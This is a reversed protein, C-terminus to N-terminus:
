DCCTIPSAFSPRASAQGRLAPDFSAYGLLDPRYGVPANKVFAGRAQAIAPTTVSQDGGNAGLMLGGEDVFGVHHAVGGLGYFVLDGPSPDSIHPLVQWWVTSTWGQPPLPVGAARAAVIVLGSCDVGYDGAHRGGGWQYLTGADRLARAQDLMQQRSLEWGSLAPASSSSSGGLLMWAAAGVLAIGGGWLLAGGAKM